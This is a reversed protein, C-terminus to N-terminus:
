ESKLKEKETMQKKVEDLMVKDCETLVMIDEDSMEHHLMNKVIMRKEEEKGRKKGERKGDEREEAAWDQFGKAMNVVNGEEKKIYRLEKANAYHKMVDYAEESINEYDPNNLVLKKIQNKDKSCRIFDFVQRIDTKFVSTDEWKRVEILNVKYNQVMDKLEDPIDTFDVIDKLSRGGDWEEGSYLVFTIVPQLRSEKLFGYMYEGDKVGSDSQRINRSIERRQKEYEGADYKMVSLPLAYNVMEQNEIGIMAFNVGFAVKRVVDRYMTSSKTSKKGKVGTKYQQLNKSDAPVLDEPKVMQRGKLGCGNILDAFREENEFFVNWTVDKKVNGEEKPHESPKQRFKTM